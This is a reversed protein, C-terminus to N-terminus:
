DDKGVLLARIKRTVIEHSGTTACIRGDRDSQMNHGYVASQAVCGIDLILQENVTTTLVVLDGALSKGSSARVLGIQCICRGVTMAFPTDVDAVQPMRQM